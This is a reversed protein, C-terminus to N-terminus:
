ETPPIEVAVGANLQAVDLKRGRQGAKLTPLIVGASRYSKERACVNSYTAHFGAATLKTVVDQRTGGAAGVERFAACFEVSTPGAPKVVAVVPAVAGGEVTGEM